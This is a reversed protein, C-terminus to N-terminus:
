IGSNVLSNVTLVKKQNGTVVRPVYSQTFNLLETKDNLFFVGLAIEKAINVAYKHILNRLVGTRSGLYVVFTVSM